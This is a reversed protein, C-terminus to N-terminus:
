DVAEKKVGCGRHHVHAIVAFQSPSPTIQCTNGWLLSDHFSFDVLVDIDRLKRDTYWRPCVWVGTQRFCVAWAKLNLCSVEKDREFRYFCTSNNGILKVNKNLGNTGALLFSQAQSRSKLNLFLIKAHQTTYQEMMKLRKSGSINIYTNHMLPVTRRFLIETM